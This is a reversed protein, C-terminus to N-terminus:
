LYQEWAYMTVTAQDKLLQLEDHFKMCEADRSLRKDLAEKGALSDFEVVEVIAGSPSGNTQIYLKLSRIEALLEPNGEVYELFRRWLEAHRGRQGSKVIRTGVMIVTM